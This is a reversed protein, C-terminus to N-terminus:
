DEGGIVDREFKQVFYEHADESSAIISLSSRDYRVHVSETWDPSFLLEASVVPYERTSIDHVTLAEGEEDQLEDFTKEVGTPHLVTIEVVNSASQIFRWLGARSLINTELIEFEGNIIDNFESIIENTNAQGAEKRLIFLGSNTRIQFSGEARDVGLNTYEEYSFRGRFLPQQAFPYDDIQPVVTSREISYVRLSEDEASAPAQWAETIEVEKVNDVTPM